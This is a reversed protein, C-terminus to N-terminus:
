IGAGIRLGGGGAAAGKEAAASAEEIGYIGADGPIEGVLVPWETIGVMVVFRQIKLSKTITALYHGV